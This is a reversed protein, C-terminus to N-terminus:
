RRRRWRGLALAFFLLWFLAPAGPRNASVACSPTREPLCYFDVGGQHECAFGGPCDGRGSVCRISCISPEVLCDGRVCEEHTTCSSGSAGPTPQPHRCLSEQCTLSAACEDDRTCPDACFRLTAEDLAEACRGSVCHADYLCREAPGVAGPSWSDLTPRLFTELHADVRTARGLETCATDGRSIVAAVREGSSTTIFVPGGSDGHCPLSPVPGLVIHEASVETTQSTGERKRVDDAAGPSTVGYGVLRVAVPPTQAIAADDVLAVPAVPGPAALLFLAIDRDATDDAGPHGLAELIPVLTGPGRLEAGFFVALETPAVDVDCHAATLVVREAVLAGTCRLTTPDDARVIAVVAPDGDDDFGATLSALAPRDPPACAVLLALGLASLSRGM